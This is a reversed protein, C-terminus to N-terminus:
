VAQRLRALRTLCILQAIEGALDSGSGFGPTKFNPLMVTERLEGHDPSHVTATAGIYLASQLEKIRKLLDDTDSPEPCHRPIFGFSSIRQSHLLEAAKRRIPNNSLEADVEVGIVWDQILDNQVSSGLADFDIKSWGIEEPDFGQDFRTRVARKALVDGIIGDVITLKLDAALEEFHDNGLIFYPFKSGHAVRLKLEMIEKRWESTPERSPYYNVGINVGDYLGDFEVCIVPADSEDCLTYDISTKKLRSMEVESVEVSETTLVSLFPLNHYISHEKGWQYRLKYYNQQEAKSAFVSRKIGM